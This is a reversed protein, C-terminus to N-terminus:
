QDAWRMRNVGRLLLKATRVAADDDQGMFVSTELSGLASNARLRQEGSFRDTWSAGVTDEVTPAFLSRLLTKM